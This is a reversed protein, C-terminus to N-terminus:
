WVECQLLVSAICVGIYTNLRAVLGFLLEFFHWSNLQLIDRNGIRCNMIQVVAFEGFFNLACYAAFIYHILVNFESACEQNQVLALPMAIVVIYYLIANLYIIWTLIPMFDKELKM